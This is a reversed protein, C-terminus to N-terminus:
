KFKRVKSCSGVNRREKSLSDTKLLVRKIETVRGCLRGTWEYNSVTVISIVVQLTVLGAM